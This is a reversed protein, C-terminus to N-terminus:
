TLSFQSLVDSSSPKNTFTAFQENGFFLGGSNQDYRFDDRSSAGFGSRSVQIRDGEAIDFDLITDVSGDLSNFIFTDEGKGGKINDNGKGGTITDNGAFGRIRNNRDNGILSDDGMTGNIRKPEPTPPNGGLPTVVGKGEGYLSRIGRIDDKLLFATGLGKYNFTGAYSNMVATVNDEHDLGLAHGIEHVATEMFFNVNWKEGSDFKMDGNQPFYAFALTGGKGDIYKQGIRIQSNRRSDKVEVFNLPAVDAWTKFSEEIAAKVTKVGIGKISGDLLNTYSYTITVPNGKGGPQSWKDGPAKFFAINEFRQGELRGDNELRFQASDLSSSPTSQFILESSDDVAKEVLEKGITAGDIAWNDQLSIAYNDIKEQAPNALSQDQKFKDLTELGTQLTELDM